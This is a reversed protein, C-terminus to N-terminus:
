LYIGFYAMSVKSTSDPNIQILYLTGSEDGVVFKSNSNIPEESAVVHGYIISCGHM